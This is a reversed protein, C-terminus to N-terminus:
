IMSIVNCVAGHAGHHRHQARQVLQDNPHARVQHEDRHVPAGRADNGVDALGDGQQRRHVTVLEVVAEVVALRVSAAPEPDTLLQSRPM